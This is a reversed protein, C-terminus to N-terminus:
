RVVHAQRATSISFYEVFRRMPNRKPRTAVAPVMEAAIRSLEKQLASSEELIAGRQVAKSIEQTSAPLLHKVPLDIIREIDDVSLSSRREVCNLIVSVNGALKLDRLWGSKRRAVHLASVDPTTVLFIRRSRMLVEIEYDEMHGSLDISISSYQRVVFDLVNGFQEMPVRRSIDLAGSGLLHLNGMQSILGSWLDWDM